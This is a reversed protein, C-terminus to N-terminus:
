NELGACHLAIQYIIAELAVLRVLLRRRDEKNETGLYKAVRDLGEKALGLVRATQEKCRRGLTYAMMRSAGYISASYLLVSVENKASGRRLVEMYAEALDELERRLGEPLGEQRAEAM